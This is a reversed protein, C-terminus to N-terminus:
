KHPGARLVPDRPRHDKDASKENGSHAGGRSKAQLAVLCRAPSGEDHFKVKTEWTFPAEIDPPKGVPHKGSAPRHDGKQTYLAVEFREARAGNLMKFHVDFAAREGCGGNFTAM